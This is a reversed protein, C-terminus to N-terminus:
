NREKMRRERDLIINSWGELSRDDKTSVPRITSLKSKLEDLSLPLLTKLFPVIAKDRSTARVPPLGTDSTFARIERLTPLVTQAMLDDYFKVLLASKEQETKELIVLSSRFDRTARKQEPSEPEKTRVTRATRATTSLISVLRESFEPTSLNGALNEFTEPGYKKLLKTIEVLLEFEPKNTM